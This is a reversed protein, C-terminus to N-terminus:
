ASSVADVSERGLLRAAAEVLRDREALGRIWADAAPAVLDAQAAYREDWAAPVIGVGGVGLDPTALDVSAWRPVSGTAAILAPHWAATWAALLGDAEQEDLWTPFDHLSHCPLLVILRDSSM